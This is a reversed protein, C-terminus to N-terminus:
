HREDEDGIMARLEERICQRIQESGEETSFYVILLDKVDIEEGNKTKIVISIEQDFSPM